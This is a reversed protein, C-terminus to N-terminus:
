KKARLVLVSGFHSPKLVKGIVLRNLIKTLVNSHKTRHLYSTGGSKVFQLFMQFAQNFFPPICFYKKSSIIKFGRRKLEKILVVKKVPKYPGWFAYIGTKRIDNGFFNKIFGYFLRFFFSPLRSVIVLEGDKNLLTKIKSFSDQRLKAPLREVKFMMTALDYSNKVNDYLSYTIEKKKEPCYIKVAEKVYSETEDDLNVSNIKSKPFYELFGGDYSFFDVMKKNSERALVKKVLMRESDDMIDM